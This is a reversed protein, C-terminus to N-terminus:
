SMCWGWYTLESPDDMFSINFKRPELNVFAIQTHPLSLPCFKFNSGLVYDTSFNPAINKNNTKMKISLHCNTYNLQLEFFLPFKLFGDIWM